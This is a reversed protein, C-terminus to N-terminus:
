GFRENVRARLNLTEAVSELSNAVILDFRVNVYRDKIQSEMLDLTDPSAIVTVALSQTNPIYDILESHTTVMPRFLNWYAQATSFFWRSDLGPGLVIMHFDADGHIPGPGYPVPTAPALGSGMVEQPPVNKYVVPTESLRGIARATGPRYYDDEKWLTLGFFWPPAQRAIWEFMAVTAEAQSSENYAPYRNDPQFTQDRFPYIGGETGIVPVAQAGFIQACRENFMSGMALLGNPDGYPTLSTGGYVTRGPDAAQGIPDYPYEFHWGPETAVEAGMSRKSLSGGGPIEQYFHNAIYPHTACWCGNALITRFREYHNNALYNLFADMWLTAAYRYDVSEALPIFGPYCGISIVYEAFLLWNEMLPRICNDIDQWSPNFNNPWEVGLNPENYFEFWKVGAQAFSNVIGQLGRSFPGAGYAGLYLRTIPTVNHNLFYVADDVYEIGAALLKVWGMRPTTWHTYDPPSQFAQEVHLGRPNHSWVFDSLLM